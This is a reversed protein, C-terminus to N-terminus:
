GLPRRPGSRVDAPNSHARVEKGDSVGGKDTDCKTPDSKDKGFRKNAEGTMEVKDKLGDRDTDARRPNSRTRGIIFSGKRTKVKQKM